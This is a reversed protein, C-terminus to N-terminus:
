LRPMCLVSASGPGRKLSLLTHMVAFKAASTASPNFASAVNELKLTQEQTPLLCRVTGRALRSPSSVPEHTCWVVDM